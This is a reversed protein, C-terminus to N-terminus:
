SSKDIFNKILEEIEEVSVDGREKIQIALERTDVNRINFWDDMEGFDYDKYPKYPTQHM